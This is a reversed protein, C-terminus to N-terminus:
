LICLFVFNGSFCLTSVGLLVMRTVHEQFVCILLSKTLPNALMNTMPKHVVSILSEAVKKKVLFSRRMLISPALLAGLTGLFFYLHLIIM